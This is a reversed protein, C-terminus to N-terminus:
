NKTYTSNSLVSESSIEIFKENLSKKYESLSSYIDDKISNFYDRDAVDGILYFGEMGQNYVVAIIPETVSDVFVEGPTILNIVSKAEQINSEKLDNLIKYKDKSLKIM